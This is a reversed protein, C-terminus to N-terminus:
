MLSNLHEEIEKHLHKVKGKVIRLASILNERDGKKFINIIDKEPLYSMETVLQNKNDIILKWSVLNAEQKKRKM